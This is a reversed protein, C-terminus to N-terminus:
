FSDSTFLLFFFTFCFHFYFYFHPTCTSLLPRTCMPPEPFWTTWSTAGEKSMWTKTTEVGAIIEGNSWKLKINEEDCQAALYWSLNWYVYVLFGYICSWAFSSLCFLFYKYQDFIMIAIFPVTQPIRSGQRVSRSLALPRFSPIFYSFRQNTRKLRALSAWVPPWARKLVRRLINWHLVLFNHCFFLMQYEWAPGVVM